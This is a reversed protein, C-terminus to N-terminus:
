NLTYDYNLGYKKLSVDVVFSRNPLLTFQQGNFFFTNVESSFSNIIAEFWSMVQILCFSSFIAVIWKPIRILSKM